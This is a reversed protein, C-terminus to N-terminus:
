MRSNMVNKVIFGLMYIYSVRDLSIGVWMWELLMFMVSNILWNMDVIIVVM